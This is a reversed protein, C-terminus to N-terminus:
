MVRIDQALASDEMFLRTSNPYDPLATPRCWPQLNNKRTMSPPPSSSVLLAAVRPPRSFALPTHSFTQMDHSVGSDAFVRYLVFCRM